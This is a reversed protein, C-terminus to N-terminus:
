GRPQRHIHPGLVRLGGTYRPADWNQFDRAAGCKSCRGPSTKGSPAAIVWHHSCDTAADAM